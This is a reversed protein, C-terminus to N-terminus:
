DDEGRVSQYYIGILGFTFWVTGLIYFWKLVQGFGSPDPDAYFAMMLFFCGFAFFQNRHWDSWEVQRMYRVLEYVFFCGIGVFALIESATQLAVAGLAQLVFIVGM